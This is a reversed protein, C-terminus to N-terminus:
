IVYIYKFQAAFVLSICSDSRSDTNAYLINM